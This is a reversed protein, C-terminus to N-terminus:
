EGAAEKRKESVREVLDRAWMRMVSEAGAWTTVGTSKKGKDARIVEMVIEGSGGDLCEGEMAAAGRGRGLGAGMVLRAQPLVRTVSRTKGLDTVAWRCHLVGPGVEDVLNAGAATLEERVVDDLRKGLELMRAAEEPDIVTAEDADPYLYFVLEELYLADFDGFEYNPNIYGLRAVDGPIKSLRGYDSLFGSFEEAEALGIPPLLLAVALGLAVILWTRNTM